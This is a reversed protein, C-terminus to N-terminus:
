KGVPQKALQRWQEFMKEPSIINNDFGVSELRQALRTVQPPKINAKELLETQAFVEQVSGESLVRGGTMVVVRKAYEAVIDMEHTIIIITHGHKENLMKLFEMVEISQKYDQGTTPEDV